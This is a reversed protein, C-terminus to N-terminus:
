KTGCIVSNALLTLVVSYAVGFAFLLFISSIVCAIKKRKERISGCFYLVGENGLCVGIGVLNFGVLADGAMYIKINCYGVSVRDIPLCLIGIGPM